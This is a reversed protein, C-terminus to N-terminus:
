GVERAAVTRGYRISGWILLGLVGYGLAPALLLYDRTALHRAAVLLAVSEACLVASWTWTLRVFMRRLEPRQARADFRVQLAVDSGAMTQRALPQMLPRGLLVSVAFVLGLAAPMLAQGSLAAGRSHALLTIAASVCLQVLAIIAIVDVIRQRSFMVLFEVAPVLMSLLLPATSSPAFYSVVLRYVLYPGALNIILSRVLSSLGAPAARQQAVPTPANSSM